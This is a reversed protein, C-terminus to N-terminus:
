CEMAVAINTATISITLFTIEMPRTKQAIFGFKCHTKWKITLTIRKELGSSSPNLLALIINSMLIVM